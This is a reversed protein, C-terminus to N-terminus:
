GLKSLHIQHKDNIRIINNVNSTTYSKKDSKKSKFKPFGVKPDRFFNKYAAQLHMQENCLAYSDIEKLWSFEDKYMAPTNKLNIKDQTYANIKDELMKNYIFRCSGFTKQVLLEQEKNLKLRFKFAKNM